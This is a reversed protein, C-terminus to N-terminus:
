KDWEHESDRRKTEKGATGCHRGRRACKEDKRKLQGEKWIGVDNEEEKRIGM